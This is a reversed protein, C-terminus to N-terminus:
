EEKEKTEIEPFVKDLKKKLYSLFSGLMSIIIALLFIVAAFGAGLVASQSFSQYDHM